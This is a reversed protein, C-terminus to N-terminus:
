TRCRTMRPTEVRATYRLFGPEMLERSATGCSAKGNKGYVTALTAGAYRVLRAVVAEDLAGEVAASIATAAPM